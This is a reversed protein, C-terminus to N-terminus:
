QPSKYEIGFFKAYEELPELGVKKRRANVNREDEIPYFVPEGTKNFVVQSGYIQKKGQRMLVRDQLMALDYAQSEGDKVSQEL